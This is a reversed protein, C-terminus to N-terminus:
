FRTTSRPSTPTAARTAGAADLKERKTQIGFYLVHQTPLSYRMWIDKGYELAKDKQAVATIRHFGLQRFLPLLVDEILEDESAADLYSVLAQRRKVEVSSLPRHPNPMTAAVVNTGLHRLSMCIASRIQPGKTRNPSSKPTISRSM